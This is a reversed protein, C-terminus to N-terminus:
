LKIDKEKYRKRIIKNISWTGTAQFIITDSQNVLKKKM